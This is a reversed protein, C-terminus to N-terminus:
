PEYAVGDIVASVLTRRLGDRNTWSLRGLRHRGDYTASVTPHSRDALRLEV